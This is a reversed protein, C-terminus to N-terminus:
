WWALFSGNTKEVLSLGHGTLPSKLGDIVPGPAQIGPGVNGPVGKSPADDALATGAGTKGKFVDLQPRVEPVPTM